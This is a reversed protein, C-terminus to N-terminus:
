QKEPKIEIGGGETEVWPDSDGEFKIVKHEGFSLKYHYRKGREWEAEETGHFENDLRIVDTITIPEKGPMTTEYDVVIMIAKLGHDVIPGIPQPIAIYSIGIQRYENQIMEQGESNNYILVPEWGTHGTWPNNINLEDWLKVDNGADDKSNSVPSSFTAQTYVETLIIRKVKVSVNGEVKGSFTILSLMHNFMTPVGIFGGNSGNAVMNTKLDAVMFDVGYHAGATQNESLFNGGGEDNPKKGAQEVTLEQGVDWTTTSIGDKDMTVTQDVVGDNDSPSYSLFTLYGGTAPWQYTKPSTWRRAETNYTITSEPVWITAADRTDGSAPANYYAVSKFPIDTPYSATTIPAKTGASNKAIAADYSIRIGDEQVVPNVEVKACSAAAGAMVAVALMMM